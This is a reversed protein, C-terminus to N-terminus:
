KQRLFGLLAKGVDTNDIIGSFAESGPGIAFVPVLNGTHGRTTWKPKGPKRGNANLIWGGTEHDAAVVLLVEPHAAQYDLLFHTVRNVAAVAELAPGHLHDHSHSDTLEEEVFLFFGDPDDDLRGLAFQTMELLTPSREDVDVMEGLAFLGLLLSASGIPDQLTKLVQVNEDRELQGLYDSDNEGGNRKSLFVKKGGGLIIDLGSGIMKEAIAPQAYRTPHQVSFAAPSADTVHATTVVGTAMGAARAVEMVTELPKGEPSMSIVRQHVKEGTSMSSAGSASDTVQDRSHPHTTMLAVQNFRAFPYDDTLYYGMSHQGIGMGDALFFIISEPRQRVGDDSGPLLNAVMM